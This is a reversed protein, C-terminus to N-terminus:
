KSKEKLRPQAKKLAELFPLTDTKYDDVVIFHTRLAKKYEETVLDAKGAELLLYYQPMKPHEAYNVAAALQELMREFHPDSAGYGVFLVSYQVFVSNLMASFGSHVRTYREYDEATLVLEDLVIDATKGHAHIIAPKRQYLLM